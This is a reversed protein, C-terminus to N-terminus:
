RYRKKTDRPLSPMGPPLSGGFAIFRMFGKQHSNPFPGFTKLSSWLYVGENRTLHVSRGPRGDPFYMSRKHFEGDAQYVWYDNEINRSREAKWEQEQSKWKESLQDRLKGEGPRFMIKRGMPPMMTLHQDCVVLLKQGPSPDPGRHTAPQDCGGAGCTGLEETKTKEQSLSAEETKPEELPSSTHLPLSSTTPTDPRTCERTDPRTAGRTCKELIEAQGPVEAFFDHPVVVGNQVVKSFDVHWTNAQYGGPTDEDRTQREPRRGETGPRWEAQTRSAIGLSELEALYRCLKEYSVKKGKHLKLYKERLSGPAVKDRKGKHGAYVGNVSIRRSHSDGYMAEGLTYAVEALRKNTFSNAWCSVRLNFLALAAKAGFKAKIDAFEEKALKIGIEADIDAFEPAALLDTTQKNQSRPALTSM